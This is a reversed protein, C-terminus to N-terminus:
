CWWSVATVRVTAEGASIGSLTYYNCAVESLYKVGNVYVNYRCGSEIRASDQGWVVGVTNDAPNSVVLGIVELPTNSAATTTQQQTTIVPITTAPATTTPTTITEGEIGKGWVKIERITIATNPNIARYSFKIYRARSVSIQNKEMLASVKTEKRVEAWDSGNDSTMIKLKFEIEGAYIIEINDILCRDQLDIVVWHESESGSIWSTKDMGDVINTMSYFSSSCNSSVTVPKGKSLNTTIWSNSDYGDARKVAAAADVLGNRCKNGMGIDVSTEGLIRKVDLYDLEENLSCMMAAVAAIIPSAFSTGDGMAYSNNVTTTVIGSGPACIDKKMGYNTFSSLNNNANTAMAGIAEEIDSPYHVDDTADNGASCVFIIGQNTANKIINEYLSNYGGGVSYNIVKTGKEICYNMARTFNEISFRYSNLSAYYTSAQVALIEVVDNNYCSAVGAIKVNNNAKAAIIGAVKTGHTSYYTTECESLLVPTTSKTVDASYPSIVDQLEGHNLQVGTDIVGVLVKKHERESVYDWAEKAKINNLYYQKSVLADNVSIDTSEDNDSVEMYDNAAAVETISYDSYAEVAMEVTQGLSISISALYENDFLKIIDECEGNEAEVVAEIEEKTTDKDFAVLVTGAEYGNLDGKARERAAAKYGEIIEDSRNDINEEFNKLEGFEENEYYSTLAYNVAAEYDVVDNYQNIKEATKKGDILAEASIGMAEEKSIDSKQIEDFVSAKTDGLLKENRPVTISTICLVMVLVFCMIKKTSVKKLYSM